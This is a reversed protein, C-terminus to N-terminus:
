GPGGAAALPARERRPAAFLAVVVGVASGAAGLAFATTFASEAPISTGAITDATLIAAVLQGGVVGGITRMVTNMGTAIGTETQRVSEVIVNAMSAFSMPLGAGLVTMGTVLQWPEDHWLALMALGVGGLGVGIAMPVHAGLRRGLVGALPGTFFGVLAGPLLYLGTTTASANFGFDVLRALGEPLEGPLQVFQPVVVFTGFMALGAILGTLNAFLVPRNALMRMEVMPEAVRLEVQVWAVLLVASAAFLGLIPASTWGWREGESLALLLAVLGTSLLVAGPVDVRSPTKVPSEPVFLHVLVVAVGVAIAGVGFIWRWSLHDVILGSLVLGLGGGVGFVASVVGIGVSVKERPFEDKIISFSLPFVAGGAGQLMRCAILSGIDWAFAAGVSGLFFLGLSVVLLREKGYQDGLKGLLPTAVSASLLFGTLLWTVWTTSTNLERQLTPLAPIIMTQQLAFAIGAFTLVGLTVNYHRRVVEGHPM